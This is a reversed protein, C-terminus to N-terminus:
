DRDVKEAIRQFEPSEKGYQLEAFTILHRKKKEKFEEVSQYRKNRLANQELREFCHALLKHPESERYFKDGLAIYRLLIDTAPIYNKMAFQHKVYERYVSAKLDIYTESTKTKPNEIKDLHIMARILYQNAQSRAEYLMRALERARADERAQKQWEYRDEPNVEKAFDEQKTDIAKQAAQFLEVASRYDTAADKLRKQSSTEDIGELIDLNQFDKKDIGWGPDTKGSDPIILEVKEDKPPTQASLSFFFGACLTIGLLIIGRLAPQMTATAVM